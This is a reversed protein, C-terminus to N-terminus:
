RLSLLEDLQGTEVEVMPKIFMRNPNDSVEDRAFCSLVQRILNPVMVPDAISCGVGTRTAVMVNMREVTGERGWENPPTSLQARRDTGHDGTFILVTESNALDALEIMFSDVCKTQEAFFEERLSDDVGADYFSVGARATRVTTTCNRDLFFPPHPAVLHAFVFSPRGDSSIREANETLWGMTRQTGLTFASGMVSSVYSGSVTDWLTFFVAGDVFPSSVCFDVNVGCESGSWGSEVFYTDYGERKLLELLHNEGGIMAYLAQTTADGDFPETVPYSMQLLSAVSLQTSWYSSWASSPVAFGRAELGRTLSAKTDDTDMRFAQIGPYGDIVVLFIDPHEVMDLHPPTTEIALSEGFGAWSSYASLAVGSALAVALGVVIARVAVAEGLRAFLFASLAVIAVIVVWGGLVGTQRMIRGGAMLLVISVFVSWVATTRRVGVRILAWSVVLGALWVAVIVIVIREPHVVGFPNRAWVGLPWSAAAVGVLVVDKIQLSEGRGLIAFRSL